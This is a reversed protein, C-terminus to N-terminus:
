IVVHEGCSLFDSVGFNQYIRLRLNLLGTVPKYHPIFYKTFLDEKFNSIGTWAHQVGLERVFSGDGKSWDERWSGGVDKIGLEFSISPKLGHGVRSQPQTM